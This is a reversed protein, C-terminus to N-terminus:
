KKVPPLDLPKWHTVTFDRDSYDNGDEDIFFKGLKSEEYMGCFVTNGDSLQIMESTGPFDKDLGITPLQKEVNIWGDNIKTLEQVKVAFDETMQKIIEKLLKIESALEKTNTEKSVYYRNGEADVKVEQVSNCTPCYTITQTHNM